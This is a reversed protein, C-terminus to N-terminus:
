PQRLAWRYAWVAQTSVWVAAGVAIGWLLPVFGAWDHRALGAVVLGIVALKLVYTLLGAPLILRRDVLDAWAIVLSSFVFSTTAIGVGAAWGLGLAWGRDAGADSGLVSVAFVGAAGIVAVCGCVAAAVACMALGFGSDDTLAPPPPKAEATDGSQQTVERASM